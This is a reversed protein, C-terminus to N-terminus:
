YQIVCIAFSVRLLGPNMGTLYREGNCSGIRSVQRDLDGMAQLVVFMKM